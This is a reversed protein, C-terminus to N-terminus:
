LNHNIFKEPENNRIIYSKIDNIDVDNKIKYFFEYFNEIQQKILNNDLNHSFNLMKKNYIDNVCNQEIINNKTIDEKIVYKTHLANLIQNCIWTTFFDTLHNQTIFLRKDKYNNLIFISPKITCHKEKEILSNICINFREEFYFDLEFKDYMLLIESLKINNKIMIMINKWGCNYLTGIRWKPTSSEYYVTYISSNYIYPISIKICDIPLQKLLYNSSYVGHNDNLPQYIFLSCTKLHNIDINTLKITNLKDHNVYPIITYEPLCVKIKEYVYIILQCNGYLICLM